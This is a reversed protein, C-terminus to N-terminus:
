WRLGCVKQATMVLKQAEAPMGQVQGAKAPDSIAKMVVGLETILNQRAAPGGEKNVDIGTHDM